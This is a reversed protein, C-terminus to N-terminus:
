GGLRLPEIQQLVQEAHVIMRNGELREFESLWFQQISFDDDLYGSSRANRESQRFWRSAVRMSGLAARLIDLRESLTAPTSSQLGGTWFTPPPLPEVLIKGFTVLLFQTLDNRNARSAAELYAEIVRTQNSGVKQMHNWDSIGGKTQELELWRETLYGQMAELIWVSDSEFLRGFDPITLNGTAFDNPYALWCFPNSNMAPEQAAWPLLSKEERLMEFILFLVFRDAPTLDTTSIMSPKRMKNLSNGTIWIMLSLFSGSFELPLQEVMSREWLRGFKAQGNRLFKQKRWGGMRVLYLVVGKSLSDKILHVAGASLCTPIINAKKLLNQGVDAPLQGLCARLLRILDAEFPSVSLPEPRTPESEASPDQSM